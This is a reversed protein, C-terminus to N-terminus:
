ASMSAFRVMGHWPPESHMQELAKISIMCFRVELTGIQHTCKCNQVRSRPVVCQILIDVTRILLFNVSKLLGGM